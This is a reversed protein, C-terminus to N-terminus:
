KPGQSTQSPKAGRAYSLLRGLMEPQDRPYL